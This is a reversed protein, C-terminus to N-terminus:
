ATLKAARNLSRARGPSIRAGSSMIVENSTLVLAVAIPSFAIGPIALGTWTTKSSGSRDHGLIPEGLLAIKRPGHARHKFAGFRALHHGIALHCGLGAVRTCGAGHAPYESRAFVERPPPDNCGVSPEDWAEDVFM